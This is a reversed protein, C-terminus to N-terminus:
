QRNNLSIAQLQLKRFPFPFINKEVLCFSFSGRDGLMQNYDVDEEKRM